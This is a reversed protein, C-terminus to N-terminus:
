HLYVHALTACLVCDLDRSCFYLPQNVLCRPAVSSPLTLAHCLALNHVRLTRFLHLTAARFSLSITDSLHMAGAAICGEHMSRGVM